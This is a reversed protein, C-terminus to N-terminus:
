IDVRAAVAEDAGGQRVTRMLELASDKGGHEILGGIVAKAAELQEPKDLSAFLRAALPPDSRGAGTM